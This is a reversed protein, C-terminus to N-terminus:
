LLIRQRIWIRIQLLTCDVCHTVSKSKSGLISGGYAFKAQGFRHFARYDYTKVTAKIDSSFIIREKMNILTQIETLTIRSKVM